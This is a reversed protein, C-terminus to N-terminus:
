KKGPQMWGTVPIFRKGGVDVKTIKVNGGGKRDNPGYTVPGILGGTEFGKLGELANM